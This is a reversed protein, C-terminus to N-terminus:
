SIVVFRLEKPLNGVNDMINEFSQTFKHLTCVYLYFCIEECIYRNFYWVCVYCKGVYFM